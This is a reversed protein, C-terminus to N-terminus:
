QAGPLIVRSVSKPDVASTSAAQALIASIRDRYLQDLLSPRTAPDRAELATISATSARAKALREEAQARAATLAADRGRDAQQRLRAADTRASAMGQEARQTADLVADYSTKAAPPLLATVDARTVAVGLGAGADALRKLSANMASVLDGRVANRAAQAAPDAAREPRAAMFDDLQRAAAVRVAADIFLRRLAAPVHDQAVVYASADAIRWTISADLLVVAGDGTLYLGADPPIDGAQASDDVIGPVAATRAAVHLVMQREPSPLRVLTELPRPWSWLLGSQQVLVIRGFREVVAQTGPPIPRVGATLWALALVAVFVQLVRFAIAVSQFLPGEGAEAASV